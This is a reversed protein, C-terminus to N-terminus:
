NARNLLRQKIEEVKALRVTDGIASYITTHYDLYKIYTTLQNEKGSIPIKDISQFKSLTNKLNKGDINYIHEVATITEDDNISGFLNPQKCEKNVLEHFAIVKAQGHKIEMKQAYDTEQLSSKAALLIGLYASTKRIFFFYYLGLIPITLLIVPVIFSSTNNGSSILPSNVLLLVPLFLILFPSILHTFYLGIKRIESEADITFLNVRNGKQIISDSIAKKCIEFSQYDKSSFKLIIQKM